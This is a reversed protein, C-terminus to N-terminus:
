NILISKFNNKIIGEEEDRTRAHLRWRLPVRGIAACLYGSGLRSVDLLWPSHKLISNPVPAELCVRILINKGMGEASRVTLRCRYLWPESGWDPRWGPSSGEGVGGVWLFPKSLAVKQPLCSAPCARKRPTCGPMRSKSFNAFPISSPFPLLSIKQQKKFM